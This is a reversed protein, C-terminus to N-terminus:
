FISIPRDPATVDVVPCFRIPRVLCFIITLAAIITGAAASCCSTVMNIPKLSLTFVCNITFIENETNEEIYSRAKETEGGNYLMRATM